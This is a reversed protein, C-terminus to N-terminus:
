YLKNKSYKSNYAGIEKDVKEYMAKIKPDPDLMIKKMYSLAAMAGGSPLKGIAGATNGIALNALGSIVQHASIIDTFNPITKNGQMNRAKHASRAIDEEVAKYSGYLNKIPQYQEGTAQQVTDDLKKRLKNAVLADVMAEGFNDRSPNQLYAKQSVNAAAVARQAETASYGGEESRKLYAEAKKLAYNITSPYEDKLVKDDTLKLLEDSIDETDVKFKGKSDTEKVLSDAQEFLSIKRQNVAEQMEIRSEPLKSVKDGEVTEFVLKDKNKVTDVVTDLLHNNYKEVQSVTQKTKFKPAVAKNYTTIVSDATKASLGKAVQGLSTISKLVGLTAVDPAAEIGTAVTAALNPYGADTIAEGARKGASKALEGLFGAPAAANLLQQGGETFPKHTLANQVTNKNDEARALTADTSEKEGGFFESGKQLAMTGLGTLGGTITGIPSTAITAGADLVPYGKAINAVTPLAEKTMAKYDTAPMDTPADKSIGLMRQQMATPNPQTQTVPTADTKVPQAEFQSANENAYAEIEEPTVGESVEFKAIRGDPLQIKAIPM